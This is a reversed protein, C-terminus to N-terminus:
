RRNAVKINGLQHHMAEDGLLDALTVENLTAVFAVRGRDLASKLSCGPQLVCGLAHCDVISLDEELAVVVDGIRIAAAPRGLVIGGNRGQSTNLYGLIALKHVVKRLHELSIHYYGAIERMTCVRDHQKGVFLLVRLGYDTLRTLQM